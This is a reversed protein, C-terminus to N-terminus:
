KDEEEVTTASEPTVKTTRKRPSPPEPTGLHLFSMYPSPFWYAVAATIMNTYLARPCSGVDAYGTDANEKTPSDVPCRDLQYACFGVVVFTLTAQTFLSAYIINRELALRM